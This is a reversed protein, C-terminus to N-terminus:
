EYAYPRNDAQAVGHFEVWLNVDIKEKMGFCDLRVSQLWMKRLKTGVTNISGIFTTSLRLDMTSLYPCLNHFSLTRWASSLIVTLYTLFGGHAKKRMSRPEFGAQPCLYPTESRVQSVAYAERSFNDPTERWWCKYTPDTPNAYHNREEGEVEPVKWRQASM